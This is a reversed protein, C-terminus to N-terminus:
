ENSKGLTEDIKAQIAPLAAQITATVSAGPNDIIEAYVNGIGVSGSGPLGWVVGYLYTKEFYGYRSASVYAALSKSDDMHDRMTDTYRLDQAEDDGWPVTNVFYQFIKEAEEDTLGSRLVWLNGVTIPVRYQTEIDTIDPGYPFPTMGLTFKVADGPKLISPDGSIWDSGFYFVLEGSTFKARTGIDTGDESMWVYGLEKLQQAFQLANVAKPDSLAFMDTFPDITKGGNSGILYSGLDYNNIGFIEIEAPANEKISAAIDMLAQWNWEGNQWLEAPNPMGYENILDLNVYIGMNVNIRETWIGYVEGKWTGMQINIDPYYEPLYHMFDTIPRIAGADALKGLNHSNINFWDAKFNGAVYQQIIENTHNLANDYAYWGLTANHETNARTICTKKMNNLETPKATLWFPDLFNRMWTGLIVRRGGLSLNVQEAPFNPDCNGFEVVKENVRFVIDYTSTKGFSNTVTYTVRFTGIASMNVRSTDIMAATVTIPGDQADNVVVMTTFDPAPDGQFLDKVLNAVETIVPASPEVPDEQITFTISLTGTIGSTNTYTYTVVFTGVVNMNVQSTNVMQATVTVNGDKSDTITVMSVFDPAPDGVTYTKVIAPKEAIVPAGQSTTTTTTTSTSTTTATTTTSVTTSTSTTTTTVGCAMLAFGAILTALVLVLKKM